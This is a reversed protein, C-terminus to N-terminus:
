WRRVQSFHRSAAVGYILVQVSDTWVAGPPYLDAGSVDVDAFAAHTLTVSM